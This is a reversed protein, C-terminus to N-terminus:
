KDSIQTIWNKYYIRILDFDDKESLVGNHAVINRFTGLDELRHLFKSDKILHEFKTEYKRLLTVLDSWDLAYLPGLDSRSPAWKKKAENLKRDEHKKKMSSNAAQEWWDDGLDKKLVTGIMERVSNEMLFLHAYAQIMARLDTIRSTSVFPPVAINDIDFVDEAVSNSLPIEEAMKRSFDRLPAFVGDKVTRINRSKRLSTKVRSVNPKPLHLADFADSLEIVTVGTKKNNQEFLAWILMESQESKSSSQFLSSDAVRETLNM